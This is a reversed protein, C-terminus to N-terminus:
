RLSAGRRNHGAGLGRSRRGKATSRGSRNRDRIGAAITEAAYLVGKLVAEKDKTVHFHKKITKLAHEYQKHVTQSVWYSFQINKGHKRLEEDYFDDDDSKTVQSSTADQTMLGNALGYENAWRDATRRSIDLNEEVWAGFGRDEDHIDNRSGQARLRVRLWFLLPGMEKKALREHKKWASKIAAKLEQENLKQLESDPLVSVTSRSGGNENSLSPREESAEKEDLTAIPM